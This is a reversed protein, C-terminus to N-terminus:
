IKLIIVKALKLPEKTLEKEVNQYASSWDEKDFIKFKNIKKDQLNTVVFYDSLRDEGFNM